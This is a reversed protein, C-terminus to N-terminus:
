APRRGVAVYQRFPIRLEGGERYDRLRRDVAEVVAARDGDTADSWGRGMPTAQVHIPVFTAPLPLTLDVSDEVIEVSDLGAEALLAALADRDSLGFAAGLGAATDPGIHTAMTEVLAHFYPSRPLPCWVSVAVRGGPRAIRVMERMAGSRDPFFQISQASLVLDSFGDGVPLAVADGELWEASGGELTRRAVELMAPNRDVGVVRGSAALHAEVRRVAAGTGCGVDVVTDAAAPGVRDVFSAAAPGLIAPVLVAEYREAADGGLHWSRSTTPPPPDHPM